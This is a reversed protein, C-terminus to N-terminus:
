AAEKEAAEKVAKGLDLKLPKVTCNDESARKIRFQRLEADTLTELAELNLTTEKRLYKAIDEESCKQEILIISAEENPVDLSTSKRFGVTGYPTKISKVGIFWEPHASVIAVIATESETLTSQLKAYEDRREDVINIYEGQIDGTLLAMRATAEAFVALLDVLNKYDDPKIIETPM